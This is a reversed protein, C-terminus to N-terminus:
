YTRIIVFTPSQVRSSIGLAEVLYKTFTTKGSGLDGELLVPIGPELTNAIERAIRKTEELSTSLYEM